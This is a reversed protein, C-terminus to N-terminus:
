FKQASLPVDILVLSLAFDFYAVKATSYFVAKWDRLMGFGLRLRIFITNPVGEM